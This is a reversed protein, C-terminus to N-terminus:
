CEGKLCDQLRSKRASLQNSYVLHKDSLRALEKHDEEYHNKNKRTFTSTPLSFVSSLTTSPPYARLFRHKTSDFIFSHLPREYSSLPQFVKPLHQIARQESDYTPLNTAWWFRLPKLYIAQNPSDTQASGRIQVTRATTALSTRTITSPLIKSDSTASIEKIIPLPLPYVTTGYQKSTM